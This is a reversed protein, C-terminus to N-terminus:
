TGKNRTTSEMWGGVFVTATGDGNNVVKFTLYSPKKVIVADKRVEVYGKECPPCPPNLQFSV